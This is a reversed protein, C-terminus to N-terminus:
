RMMPTNSPFRTDSTLQVLRTPCVLLQGGSDGFGFLGAGLSECFNSTLQDLSDLVIALAAELEAFKPQFQLLHNGM